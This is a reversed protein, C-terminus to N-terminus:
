NFRSAVAYIRYRLDPIHVSMGPVALFQTDTARLQLFVFIPWPPQSVCLATVLGLYLYSCM